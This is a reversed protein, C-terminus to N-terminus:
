VLCTDVADVLMSAYAAVGDPGYHIGDPLLWERHAEVRSGWQIVHVNPFHVLLEDM